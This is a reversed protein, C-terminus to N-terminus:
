QDCKKQHLGQHQKSKSRCPHMTPEHETQWEVLIRLDKDSSDKIRDWLKHPNGHGLHTNCVPVCIALYVVLSIIMNVFSYHFLSSVWIM